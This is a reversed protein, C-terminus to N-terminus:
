TLMGGRLPSHGGTLNSGISLLQGAALIWNYTKLAGWTNTTAEDYEHYEFRQASTPVPTITVSGDVLVDVTGGDTITPATPPTFSPLGTVGIDSLFQLVRIRTSTIQAQTQGNMTLMCSYECVIKNGVGPTGNVNRGFWQLPFPGPVVSEATRTSNVLSGGDLESITTGELGVGMFDADPKGSLSGRPTASTVNWIANTDTTDTGRWRYYAEETADTVGFYDSNGTGDAAQFTVFAGAFSEVDAYTDYDRDELVYQSALTFDL